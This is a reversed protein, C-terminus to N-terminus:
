GAGRGDRMREFEDSKALPTGGRFGRGGEGVVECRSEGVAEVEVEVAGVAVDGCM